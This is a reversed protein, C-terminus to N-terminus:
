CATDTRNLMAQGSRSLNIQRQRQGEICVEIVGTGTLRGNIGFSVMNAAAIGTASATIGAGPAETRVLVQDTGDIDGVVGGDVFILRGHEWSSNTCTAMDQSTCITVRTARMVAEDRALAFDVVLERSAGSIRSSRIFDSISPAALGMLVAALGLTLMLEFLTFGHIRRNAM